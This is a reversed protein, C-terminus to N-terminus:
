HKWARQIAIGCPTTASVKWSSILNEFPFKFKWNSKVQTSSRWSGVFSSWQLVIKITISTFPTGCWVGLCITYTYTYPRPALTPDQEVSLENLPEVRKVVLGNKSRNLEEARLRTDPNGQIYYEWVTSETNLQHTRSVAQTPSITGQASSVIGHVLMSMRLMSMVSAICM